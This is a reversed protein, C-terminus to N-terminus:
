ARLKGERSPYGAPHGGSRQSEPPDNNPSFGVGIEPASCGCSRGTTRAFYGYFGRKGIQDSNPSGFYRFHAAAGCKLEPVQSAFPIPCTKETSGCVRPRVEDQRKPNIVM